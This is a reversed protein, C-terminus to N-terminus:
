EAGGANAAGKGGGEAALAKLAEPNGCPVGDLSPHLCVKGAVHLAQMLAGELRFSHSPHAQGTSKDSDIFKKFYHFPHSCPVCPELSFGYADISDCGQLLLFLGLAGTTIANRGEYERGTAEGLATRLASLLDWGQRVAKPNMYLASYRSESGKSVEAAGRALASFDHVDVRTGIVRVEKGSDMKLLDPRSHGYVQSWKKNLVRVTTKAGVDPAYQATVPANNIRMVTDHADIDAGQKQGNVIGSSGVLACKGLRMEPTGEPLLTLDEEGFADRRRRKANQRTYFLQELSLTKSGLYSDLGAGLAEWAALVEWKEQARAFARLQEGTRGKLRGKQKKTIQEVTQGGHERRLPAELAELEARARAGTACVAAVMRDVAHGPNCLKASGGECHCPTIVDFVPPPEAGYEEGADPCPAEIGARGAGGAGGAGGIDGEGRTGETVGTGGAAGPPPSARGLRPPAGPAMVPALVALRVGAERLHVM